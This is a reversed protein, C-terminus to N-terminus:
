LRAGNILFLILIKLSFPHNFIFFTLLIIKAATIIPTILMAPVALASSKLSKLVSLSLKIILIMWPRMSRFCRLSMGLRNLRRRLCM